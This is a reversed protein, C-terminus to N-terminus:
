LFCFAHGMEIRNITHTSLNLKEALQEQTYGKQVRLEMLIKGFNKKIKTQEM